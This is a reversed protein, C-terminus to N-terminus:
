MDVEAAVHVPPVWSEDVWERGLTGDEQDVVRTDATALAFHRRTEDVPCLGNDVDDPGQADGFQVDEAEAHAAHHRLTYRKLCGVEDASQDNAARARRCALTDYTAVGLMEDFDGAGVREVVAM